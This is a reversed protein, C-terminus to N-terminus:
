SIAYLALSAAAPPLGEYTHDMADPLRGAPRVSAALVPTMEPVGVTAPVLLKLTCTLSALECVAVFANLMVIMLPTPPPIAKTWDFAASPVPTVDSETGKPDFLVAPFRIMAKTRMDVEECVTAILSLVPLM